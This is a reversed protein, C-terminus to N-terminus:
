SWQKIAKKGREKHKTPVGLLVLGGWAQPLRLCISGHRNAQLGQLTSPQQRGAPLPVPIFPCCHRTIVAASLLLRYSTVGDGPAVL